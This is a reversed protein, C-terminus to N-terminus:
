SSYSDIVAIETGFSQADQCNKRKSGGIIPLLMAVAAGSHVPMTGQRVVALPDAHVVACEPLLTGSHAHLDM